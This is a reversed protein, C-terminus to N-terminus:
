SPQYHALVLEVQVKWLEDAAAVKECTSKRRLSRVKAKDLFKAASKVRAMHMDLDLEFTDKVDKPFLIQNIKNNKKDTTEKIVGAEVAKDVAFEATALRKAADVSHGQTLYSDLVPQFEDADAGEIEVESNSDHQTVKVDPKFKRILKPLEKQVNTGEGGTLPHHSSVVEGAGAFDLQMRVWSRSFGLAEAVWSVTHGVCYRAVAKGTEIRYRRQIGAWDKQVEAKTMTRM